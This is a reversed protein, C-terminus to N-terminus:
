ASRLLVGVNLVPNVFVLPVMVTVPTAALESVFGPHRVFGSPVISIHPLAVTADPTFLTTTVNGVAIGVAYKFPSADSM